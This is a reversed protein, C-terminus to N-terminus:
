RVAGRARITVTEGKPVIARSVSLDRVIPGKVTAEYFNVSGPGGFAGMDNRTGDPNFYSAAPDGARRCPSTSMLRFDRYGNALTADVFLPDASINTSDLPFSAPNGANGHVDCYTTDCPWEGRDVYLGFGGNGYALANRVRLRGGQDGFASAAHALLGHERNFAMTCNVIEVRPKLPSVNRYLEVGNYKASTFVCNQLVLRATDGGGLTGFLGVGNAGGMVRLGEIRVNLNATDASIGISHRMEDDSADIITTAPGDHGILRVSRTITLHEKYTGPYVIVTDADEVDIAVQISKFPANTSGNGGDAAAIDVYVTKASAVTCSAILALIVALHAIRNM